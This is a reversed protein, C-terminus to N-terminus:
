KGTATGGGGVLQVDVKPPKVGTLCFKQDIESAGTIWDLEENHDENEVAAPTPYFFLDNGGGGGNDEAWQSPSLPARTAARIGPNNTPPLPSTPMSDEERGEGGEEAHHAKTVRGAASPRQCLKM